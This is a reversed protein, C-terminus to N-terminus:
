AMPVPIPPTAPGNSNPTSISVPDRLLTAMRYEIPDASINTAATASSAKHPTAASRLDSSATARGNGDNDFTIPYFWHM